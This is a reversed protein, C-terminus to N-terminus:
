RAPTVSSITIYPLLADWDKRRILDRIEQARAFLQAYDRPGVDRLILERYDIPPACEGPFECRARSAMPTGKSCDLGMECAALTLVLGRSPDTSYRKDILTSGIFFLAKEDGSRLVDHLYIQAQELDRSRQETTGNPANSLLTAIRDSVALPDGLAVAKDLWYTISLHDGEAHPLEAFPDNQILGVCRNFQREDRLKVWSPRAPYREDLRRQEEAFAKEPVSDSRALQLTLTCDALAGAIRYAARGDGERVAKLAEVVFEYYNDTTQLMADWDQRPSEGILDGNAPGEADDSPVRSSSHVRHSLLDDHPQDAPRGPPEPSMWIAGVIAATIAVAAIVIARPGKRHERSFMTLPPM